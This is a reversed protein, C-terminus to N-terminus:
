TGGVFRVFRAGFEGSRASSEDPGVTGKTTEALWYLGLIGGVAFGLHTGSSNVISVAMDRGEDRITCGAAIVFCPGDLSCRADYDHGEAHPERATM